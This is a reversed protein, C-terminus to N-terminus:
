VVPYSAAMQIGCAGEGPKSSRELKIYGQLGWGAGWSNKVLWFDKGNETGYGVALVGHDLDTGCKSAPYVGGSYLQFNFSGADIAVSVPQAAIATQLAVPDNVAVDVHSKAAVVGKSKNSKCVGDRATYPYDSETELPNTETYDFADDMLGGNCGANEGEHSCDVLQQESLSVLKGTAIAWAGELAGTSSFAWCSGCQGQDKVPTVAGKTRWDVSAPVEDVNLYNARAEKKTSKYGLLKKYEHDTWDAMHNLGLSHSVDNRSNHEEIVQMKQTFINLRFMFEERTAYSKGHEALYELFRHEVNADAAAFGLLAFTYKM